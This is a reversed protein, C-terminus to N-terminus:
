YIVLYSYSLLSTVDTRILVILTRSPGVKLSSSILIFFITASEPIMQRTKITAADVMRAAQVGVAVGVGTGVGVGVVGADVWVGVGVVAGVTFGVCVVAGVGCFSISRVAREGQGLAKM